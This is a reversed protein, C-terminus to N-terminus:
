LIAFPEDLETFQGARSDAYYRLVARTVVRSDDRLQYTSM